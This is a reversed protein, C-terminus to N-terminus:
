IGHTKKQMLCFFVKLFNFFVHTDDRNGFLQHKAAFEYLENLDEPEDGTMERLEKAAAVMVAHTKEAYIEANGGPHDQAHHSAGGALHLAMAAKKVEETSVEVKSGDITVLVM